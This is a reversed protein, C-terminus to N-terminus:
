TRDGSGGQHSPLEVRDALAGQTLNPIGGACLEAGQKGLEQPRQRRLLLSYEPLPM